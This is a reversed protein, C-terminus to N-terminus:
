CICLVMHLISLGQGGRGCWYFCFVLPPISLLPYHSFIWSLLIYIYICWIYNWQLVIISFYSFYLPFIDIYHIYICVCVCVSMYLSGVGLVKRVRLVVTLIRSRNTHFPLVFHRTKPSNTFSTTFIKNM